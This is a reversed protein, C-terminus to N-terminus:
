LLLGLEIAEHEGQAAAIVPYELVRDVGSAGRRLLVVLGEGPADAEVIEQRRAEHGVGTVGGGERRLRAGVGRTAGEPRRGAILDLRADLVQNGARVDLCAEGAKVDHLATHQARIRVVNGELDCGARDLRTAEFHLRDGIKGGTGVQSQGIRM